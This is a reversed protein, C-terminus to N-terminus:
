FVFLCRLLMYPDSNWLTAVFTPYKNQSYPYKNPYLTDSVSLVELMPPIYYETLQNSSKCTCELSVPSGSGGTTYPCDILRSETGVCVVNSM